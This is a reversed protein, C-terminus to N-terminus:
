EDWNRNNISYGLEAELNIPGSEELYLDFDARRALRKAAEKNRKREVRARLEDLEEQRDFDYDYM